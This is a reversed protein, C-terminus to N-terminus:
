ASPDTRFAEPHQKGDDGIVDWGAKSGVWIHHLVELTGGPDDLLGAPVFM